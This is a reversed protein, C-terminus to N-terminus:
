LVRVKHALMIGVATPFHKQPALRGGNRGLTLDRLQRRCGVSPCGDCSPWCVMVPPFANVTFQKVAFCKEVASWPDVPGALDVALDVTLSHICCSVRFGFKSRCPTTRISDGSCM